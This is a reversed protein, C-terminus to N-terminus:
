TWLVNVIVRLPLGAKNFFFVLLFLFFFFLFTFYLSPTSFVWYLCLSSCLGPQGSHKYEKCLVQSWINLIILENLWRRRMKQKIGFGCICVIVCLQWVVTHTAARPDTNTQGNSELLLSLAWENRTYKRICCWLMDVGWHSQKVWCGRMQHNKKEVESTVCFLWTCYDM